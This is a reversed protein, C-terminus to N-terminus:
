LSNEREKVSIQFLDLGSLRGGLLAKNVPWRATECGACAGIASTYSEEGGTGEGEGVENTLALRRYSVRTNNKFTNATIRAWLGSLFTLDAM